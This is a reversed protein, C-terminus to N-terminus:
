QAQSQHKTRSTQWVNQHAEKGYFVRFLCAFRHKHGCTEDAVEVDQGEDDAKAGDHQEGVIRVEEMFHHFIAFRHHFQNATGVHRGHMQRFRHATVQEHAEDRRYRKGRNQRHYRTQGQRARRSHAM